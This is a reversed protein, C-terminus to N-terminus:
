QGGRVSSESTGWIPFMSDMLKMGREHEKPLIHHYTDGTIAVGSHGLHKSVYALNVGNALLWTANTHRMDHLRFYKLNAAKIVADAKQRLTSRDYPQGHNTCFVLGLDNGQSRESHRLLAAKLAPIMFVKRTSEKSKPTGFIWSKDGMGYKGKPAHTVTREISILNDKYNIDKWKLGIIEGVRGGTCLMTFFITRFPENSYKLFIAAEEPTLTTGAAGHPVKYKKVLQAPNTRSFGLMMGYKLITGITVLVANTYRASIRERFKQKANELDSASIQNVVRQGLVPLIHIRLQSDYTWITSPKPNAGQKHNNLWKEALEKFLVPKIEQYAGSTSLESKIRLLHREAERKNVGITKFIQKSGVRYKIGWVAEKHDCEITKASYRVKGRRCASCRRILGM